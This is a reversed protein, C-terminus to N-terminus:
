IAGKAMFTASKHGRAGNLLSHLFTKNINKDLFLIYKEWQIKISLINGMIQFISQSSRIYTM